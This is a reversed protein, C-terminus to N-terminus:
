PITVFGARPEGLEVIKSVDESLGSFQDTGAPQLVAPEGVLIVASPGLRDSSAVDALQRTTWHNTRAQNTRDYFGATAQRLHPSLRDLASYVEGPVGQELGRGSRVM